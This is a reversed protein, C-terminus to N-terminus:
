PQEWKFDVCYKANMDPYATIEKKCKGLFKNCKLHTFNNCFKCKPIKKYKECEATDPTINNKTIKCIGKFVDVPLYYRCDKCTYNM